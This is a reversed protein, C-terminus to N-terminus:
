QVNIQGSSFTTALQSMSYTASASSVEIQGDSLQTAVQPAASKVASSTTNQVLGHAIPGFALIALTLYTPAVLMYIKMTYDCKPVTQYSTQYSWSHISFDM